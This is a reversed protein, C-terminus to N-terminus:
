LDWLVFQACAPIDVITNLVQKLLVSFGVVKASIVIWCMLGMCCNINVM